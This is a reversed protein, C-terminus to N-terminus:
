GEFVQHSCHSQLNRSLANIKQAFSTFIDSNTSKNKTESFFFIADSHSM